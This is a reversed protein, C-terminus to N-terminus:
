CLATKTFHDVAHICKAKCLSRTLRRLIDLENIKGISFCCVLIFVFTIRNM